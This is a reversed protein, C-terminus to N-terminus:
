AFAAIAVPHFPPSPPTLVFCFLIFFSLLPLCPCPSLSEGGNNPNVPDNVVDAVTHTQKPDNLAAGYLLCAARFHRKPHQQWPPSLCRNELAIPVQVGAM